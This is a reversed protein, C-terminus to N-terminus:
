NRLYDRWNPPGFLKKYEVDTAGTLIWVRLGPLTTKEWLSWKRRQPDTIRYVKPRKVDIWRFGHLPHWIGLDPIGKQLQGCYFIEVYWGRARLYDLLANRIITEPQM